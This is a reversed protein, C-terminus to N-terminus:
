DEIIEGDVIRRGDDTYEDKDELSSWADFCWEWVNGSMDFLKWGNSEKQGVPHVRNGSNGEHWAVKGPDDSGAYVFIEGGKPERAAVEWEAETPLRYGDANWEFYVDTITDGDYTIEYCPELGAFESASNCFELCDFWSVEVVPLIPSKQFASDQIDQTVYAWLVNTVAYKSIDYSRLQVHMDLDEGIVYVDKPINVFAKFFYMKLYLQIIIPHRRVALEMVFLNNPILKRLREFQRIMKKDARTKKTMVFDVLAQGHDEIVKLPPYNINGEYLEFLTAYDGQWTYDNDTYHVLANTLCAGGALGVRIQVRKAFEKLPKLLPKYKGKFKFPVNNPLKQEQFYGDGDYGAKASTIQLRDGNDLCYGMILGSRPVYSYFAGAATCWGSKEGLESSAIHTILDVFVWRMGDQDTGEGLLSCDGQKQLFLARQVWKGPFETSLLGEEILYAGLESITEFSHNGLLQQAWTLNDKRPRWYSNEGSMLEAQGEVWIELYEKAIGLDDFFAPISNQNCATVFCQLALWPVFINDKTPDAKSFLKFVESSTRTLKHYDIQNKITKMLKENTRKPELWPNSKRRM